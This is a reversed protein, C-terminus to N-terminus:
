PFMPLQCARDKDNLFDPPEGPGSKQCDNPISVAWHANGAGSFSRGPKMQFLKVMRATPHFITFGSILKWFQNSFQHNMYRTSLKFASNTSIFNQIWQSAYWVETFESGSQQIKFIMKNRKQRCLTGKEPRVIRILTPWGHFYKQSFGQINPCISCNTKLNQKPDPLSFWKEQYM